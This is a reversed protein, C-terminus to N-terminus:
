GIPPQFIDNSFLKDLSFPETFNTQKISCLYFTNFFPNSTICTKLEYYDNTTPLQENPQQDNLQFISLCNEATEHTHHETSDSTCFTHTHVVVHHLLGIGNWIVPLLMLKLLLITAIKKM